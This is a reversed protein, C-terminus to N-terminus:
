VRDGGGDEHPITLVDKIPPMWIMTVQMTKKSLTLAMTVLAESLRENSEFSVLIPTM